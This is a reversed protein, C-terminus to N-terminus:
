ELSEDTSKELDNLYVRAEFAALGDLCIVKENNGWLYMEKPSQENYSSPDLEDSSEEGRNVTALTTGTAVVFYSGFNPGLLESVCGTSDCISELDKVAMDRSQVLRPFKEQLYRLEEEKMVKM